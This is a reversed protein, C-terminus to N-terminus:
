PRRSRKAGPLSRRWAHRRCLSDHRPGDFSVGGATAQAAANAELGAKILTDAIEVALAPKVADFAQQAEHAIVPRTLLVKGELVQRIAERAKKLITLQHAGEAAMASFDVNDV